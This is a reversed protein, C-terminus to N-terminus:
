LGFKKLAAKVAAASKYKAHSQGDSRVCECEIGFKKSVDELFELEGSDSKPPGYIYTAYLTGSTDAHAVSWSVIIGLVRNAGRKDNGFLVAEIRPASRGESEYTDILIKRYADAAVPLYVYGVVQRDGPDAFKYRADEEYFSLLAKEGSGWVGSEIVNHVLEAGLPSMRRAFADATENEKRAVIEACVISASFLLLFALLRKM